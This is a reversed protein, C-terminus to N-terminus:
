AALPDDNAAASYFAGLDHYLGGVTRLLAVVQCTPDVDKTGLVGVTRRPKWTPAHQQGVVECSVVICM